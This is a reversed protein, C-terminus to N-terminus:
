LDDAFYLEIRAEEVSMTDEFKLSGELAITTPKEFGFVKVGQVDGGYSPM